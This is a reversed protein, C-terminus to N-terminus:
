DLDTLYAEFSGLAIPEERCLREAIAVIDKAVVAHSCRKEFLEVDYIDVVNFAYAEM